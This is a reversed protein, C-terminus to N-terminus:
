LNSTEAALAESVTLTRDVLAVITVTGAVVDAANLIATLGNARLAAEGAGPAATGRAVVTKAGPTVGTVVTASLITHPVLGSPFTVVGAVATLETFTTVAGEDMVYVVEAAVVTADGFLIDGKADIGVEGAGPVAGAPVPTKWGPSAGTSFAALVAAAKQDNPLTTQGAVAVLTRRAPILAFAEGGPLLMLAADVKNPNSENLVARATRSM